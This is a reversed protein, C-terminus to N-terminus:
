FLIESGDFYYIPCSDIGKVVQFFHDRLDKLKLALIVIDVAIRKISFQQLEIHPLQPYSVRCEEAPIVVINRFGSQRFLFDIARNLHKGTGYVAISKIERKFDLRSLEIVDSGRRIGPYYLPFLRDFIQPQEVIEPTIQLPNKLRDMVSRSTRGTNLMDVDLQARRAKNLAHDYNRYLKHLLSKFHGVDPEAWQSGFFGPYRLYYKAQVDVIKYEILYSNSRNLFERPGGWGTTVIPTGAQMVKLFPRGIGEGRSPLVFCDARRYLSDLETEDLVKNLLLIDPTQGQINFENKIESLTSNTKLVLCIDDHPTFSEIYAKLLIDLGKRYRAEYQFLSLFIFQKNTNLPYAPGTASTDLDAPSSVIFLKGPNVGSDRFSEFCFNNPVWVENLRKFRYVWNQPIRNVELMTRTISYQSSKPRYSGHRFTHFVIPIHPDNSEQICFESVKPDGRKGMVKIDLGHDALGKIM